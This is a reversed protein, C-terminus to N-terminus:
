KNIHIGGDANMHIKREAQLFEIVKWAKEKKVTNIHSMLERAPVPHRTLLELLLKEIAAFEDSSINNRKEKLCNDCV